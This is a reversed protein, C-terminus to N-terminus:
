LISISNGTTYLSSVKGTLLCFFFKLSLAVYRTVCNRSPFKYVPDFSLCDGLDLLIHSIICLFKSMTRKGPQHFPSFYELAISHVIFFIEEEDLLWIAQFYCKFQLMNGAVSIHPTVPNYLDSPLVSGLTVQNDYM